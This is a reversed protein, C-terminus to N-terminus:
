AVSLETALEGLVLDLGDGFIRTPNQALSIRIKRVQEAMEASGNIRGKVFKTAELIKAVDILADAVMKYKALWPAIEPQIEPWSFEKSSIIEFNRLAENAYRDLLEAAVKVQGTRWAFTAQSLVSGFDPAADVALCSEFCNRFLHRLASRDVEKSILEKLAWDWSEQAEYNNADWLYDAITALPLLSSEFRDMPNAVLGVSFDGLQKDRKEIPGVHLQHVMAVDNVPFNDWYFPLKSTEDKFKIADFVELYESCIQRGTWMLDIDSNLKVGLESIYPEHGRGHYQLPCVFLTANSDIAKLGQNIQNSFEAHAEAISLYRKQDAEFQLEGPIDDLLLGFRRVGIESLQQYRFLLSEVDETDSYCVSLGPSVCVSLEILLENAHNVLERTKDIFTSSFLTKWDFRQWPDDKPALIFSNMNWKAFHVLARKRQENTWPTGYFGEIVGRIRFSPQKTRVKSSEYTRVPRNLENIANRLGSLSSFNIKGNRIEFSEPALGSVEEHELIVDQNTLRCYNKLFTNQNSM